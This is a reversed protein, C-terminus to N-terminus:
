IQYEKFGKITCYHILIEGTEIEEEIEFQLQIEKFDRDISVTAIEVTDKYFILTVTGDEDSKYISINDATSTSMLSTTIFVGTNDNSQELTLLKKIAAIDGNTQEINFCDRFVFTKTYRSWM